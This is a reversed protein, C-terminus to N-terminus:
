LKPWKYGILALKKGEQPTKGTQQELCETLRSVLIARKGKTDMGHKQLAVRLELLNM